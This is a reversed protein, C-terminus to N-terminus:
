EMPDGPPLGKRAEDTMRFQLLFRAQLPNGALGRLSATEFRAPDGNLMELAQEATLGGDRGDFLVALQPAERAFDPAAAQAFGLVAATIILLLLGRIKTM